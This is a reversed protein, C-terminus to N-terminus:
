IIVSILAVSFLLGFILGSIIGLIYSWRSKRWFALLTIGFIAGGIGLFIWFWLTPANGLYFFDQLVPIALTMLATFFLIIQLLILTALFGVLLKSLYVKKKTMKM